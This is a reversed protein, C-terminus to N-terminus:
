DHLADDKGVVIWVDYTEYETQDKAAKINNKSEQDSEELRSYTIVYIIVLNVHLM